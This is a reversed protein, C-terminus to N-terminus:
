ECYECRPPHGVYVLPLLHEVLNAVSKVLMLQVLDYVLPLLHVVSKVHELQVLVSKVHKLQLLDGHEAEDSAEQPPPAKIVLWYQNLQSVFLTNGIFFIVPRCSTIDVLTVWTNFEAALFTIEYSIM